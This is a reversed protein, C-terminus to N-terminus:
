PDDAATVQLLPYVREAGEIAHRALPDHCVAVQEITLQPFGTLGVFPDRFKVVVVYPDDAETVQLLPYVREAGEIAHRALPDHSVAVQEITLQPFGALGAFPDSFKVM